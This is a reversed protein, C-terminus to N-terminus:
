GRERAMAAAMDVGNAMGLFMKDAASSNIMGDMIQVAMKAQEPTGYSWAGIGSEGLYDMATWTFDGIVFPNDQSIKWLPFANAPFSETTLMLRKPQQRHDAEYTPLINYNYGTIDLQSFVAEAIPGTTM